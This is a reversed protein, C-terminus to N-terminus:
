ATIWHQLARESYQHLRTFQIAPKFWRLRPRSGGPHVTRPTADAAIILRLASRIRSRGWMMSTGARPARAGGLAFAAPALSAPEPVLTGLGVGGLPQSPIPAKGYNTALLDFDEANM